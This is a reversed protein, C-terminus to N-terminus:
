SSVQRRKFLSPRPETSLNSCDFEDGESCLAAIALGVALVAASPRNRSASAPWQALRSPWRRPPLNAAPRERTQMEAWEIDRGFLTDLSEILSRRMLSTDRDVSSAKDSAASGAFDDWSRSLGDDQGAAAVGFTTGANSVDSPSTTDGTTNDGATM